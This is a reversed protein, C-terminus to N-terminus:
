FDSNKSFSIVKMGKKKFFTHIEVVIKFKSNLINKFTKKM